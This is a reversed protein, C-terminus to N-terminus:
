DVTPRSYGQCTDKIREKGFKVKERQLMLPSMSGSTEAVATKWVM